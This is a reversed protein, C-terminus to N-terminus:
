NCNPLYRVTQIILKMITFATTYYCGAEYIITTKVAIHCNLM